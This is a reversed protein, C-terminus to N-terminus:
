SLAEKALNMTNRDFMPLGRLSRDTRKVLGALVKGPGAEIVLTVGDRGLAQITEVWRVPSYLQEALLRRIEGADSEALVNVNHIVPVGTRSIQVGELKEALRDAASRMLSCHSPVSVPLMLARKAGSEKCLEMAHSVAESQGAIVVQGPSNYNAAEVVGKEAAQTCLARVVDDDLGLIAAMAGESEPVASQMLRGREAVLSITETFPMAGACVLATYEGLSHGAMHSPMPGGFEKWARWVAVGAALMAPQTHQTQGLREAPGDAVLEWLDFGLANSAETFTEKVCTFEAALESLM